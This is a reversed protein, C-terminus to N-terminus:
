NSSSIMRFLTGFERCSARSYRQLSPCIPPLLSLYRYVAHMICTMCAAITCWQPCHVHLLWKGTAIKKHLIRTVHEWPFTSRSWIKRGLCKIIRGLHTAVYIDVRIDTSWSCHAFWCSCTSYLKWHLLGESDVNHSCCHGNITSFLLVIPVHSGWAFQM